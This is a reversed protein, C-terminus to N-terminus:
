KRFGGQEKSIKEKTLRQVREIIVKEYVKRTISLLSIGRYSGCEERRGKGKYVPVIIVKTWDTPVERGWGEFFFFFFFFFIATAQTCLRARILM